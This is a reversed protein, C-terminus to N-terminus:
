CMVGMEVRWRLGRVSCHGSTGPEDFFSRNKEKRLAVKMRMELLAEIYEMEERDDFAGYDWKLFDMTPHLEKVYYFGVKWDDQLAEQRLAPSCSRHPNCAAVLFINKPLAQSLSLLFCSHHNRTTDIHKTQMVCEVHAIEFPPRWCKARRFINLKAKSRKNTIKWLRVRKRQFFFFFGKMSTNLFQWCHFEQLSVIELLPRLKSHFSDLTVQLKVNAIMLCKRVLYSKLNKQQILM